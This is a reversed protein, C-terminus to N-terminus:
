EFRFLKIALVSTVAMWAGLIALETPYAWFPKAELAVGRMADLLPSLPLYGVVSAMVPPLSERPFFTGSLFMMPMSVANALGDAARVNKAIAGVIFGLNLFVINAIIVLLLLGLFSGYVHAKFLLIGAGVIVVAQLVSLLLYSIIQAIFFTRVKLPTALIRKLIKQERYLTIVSAIGIISYTMVGMGVLGPLLFDFYTLQRSQVGEAQLALFTPAQVIQKNTEEIFRQVTGIITPATQSGRDYLLTVKVPEPNIRNDLLSAMGEPIILLYGKDGDKVEQRATAVDQREELKYGAMASLSAILGKSLADQSQDIFLIEVDPPEDLRFLGFIVVFILPFAMAWFLAQRNRYIMKLNALVLALLM